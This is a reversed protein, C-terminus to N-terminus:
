LPNSRWMDARLETLSSVRSGWAQNFVDGDTWHELVHGWPDRWYDYVQGGLLHRGVGRHHDYGATRLRDHGVMLDDLDRVEFAAHHFCAPEGKLLFLSHHDTFAAGRNFRMFQGVQRDQDDRIDDSTLFGFRAKYWAVSRAVDQVQLVTHGLRCVQATTLAVRREASVRPTEGAVNAALSPRVPMPEGREAFRVAEVWFGDPDQLRVAQGGGPGDVSTIKGSWREAFSELDDGVDIGFGLFGPEGREAAYVFPTADACRFHLATDTRACVTLGFDTLFSELRGLDPAAFRVYAVARGVGCEEVSM